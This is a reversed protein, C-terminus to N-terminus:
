EFLEPREFLLNTVGEYQPGFSFHGALANPCVLGPRSHSVAARCIHHEDAGLTPEGLLIRYWPVPFKLFQKWFEREFVIMGISFQVSVHIPTVEKSRIRKLTEQLPATTEWMWRAADANMQIPIGSTGLVARGFRTEFEKLKDIAELVSRYCSGNIPILPAAFGPNITGEAKIDSYFDLLTEVTDRLLFMDEDIKVILDAEPHLDIALNQALGVDNIRTSLYSWGHTDCIDRLAPLDLGPSVLCVDARFPIADRLRPITYPWLQEKYGILVVILLNSGAARSELRYRTRTRAIVVGSQVKAKAFALMRSSALSRRTAM